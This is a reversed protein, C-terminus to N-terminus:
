GQLDLLYDNTDAIRVFGFHKQCFRILPESVSDFVLYKMGTGRIRERVAPFERALAMATRRPEQPAFQIHLRVIEADLPEIRLYMVPGVKDEVALNLSDPQRFFAETM